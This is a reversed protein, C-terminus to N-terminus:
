AIGARCFHWARGHYAYLLMYRDDGVHDIMVTLQDGVCAKVSKGPPTLRKAKACESISIPLPGKVPALPKGDIEVFYNQPVGNKVVAKLEIRGFRSKYLGADQQGTGSRAPIPQFAIAACSPPERLSAARGPVLSLLFFLAVAAAGFFPKTLM